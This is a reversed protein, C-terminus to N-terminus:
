KGCAAKGAGIWAMRFRIIAADAVLLFEGVRKSCERMRAM